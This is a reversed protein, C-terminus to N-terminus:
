FDANKKVVILVISVRHDSFFFNMTIKTYITTIM